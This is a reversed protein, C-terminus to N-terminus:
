CQIGPLDTQNELITGTVVANNGVTVTGCAMVDGDIEANNRIDVNGGAILDGSVANNRITIDGQAVINGGIKANNDVTVSGGSNISGGVDVNNDVTVDGGATVDGDEDVTIVVPEATCDVPVLAATERTADVSSGDGSAVFQLLVRYSGELSTADTCALHVDFTNAESGPQVTASLTTSTVPDSNDDTIRVVSADVATPDAGGFNDTVTYVVTSEAPSDIAASASRDELGLYASSDDATAVSVGRDAAITAFGFTPGAMVVVGLLIFVIALGTFPRTM